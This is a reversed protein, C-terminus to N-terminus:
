YIKQRMVKGFQVLGAKAIFSDMSGSYFAFRIVDFNSQQQIAFFPWPGVARRQQIRVKVHAPIYDQPPHLWVVRRFFVTLGFFVQL